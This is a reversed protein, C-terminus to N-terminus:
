RTKMSKKAGRHALHGAQNLRCYITELPRPKTFKHTASSLTPTKQQTKNNTQTKKKEIYHSNWMSSKVPLSM